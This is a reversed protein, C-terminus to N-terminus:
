RANDVVYPPGVVILAVLWREDTGGWSGAAVYIFGGGTFPIVWEIATAGADTWLGVTAM